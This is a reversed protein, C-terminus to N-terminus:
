VIRVFDGYASLMEDHTVLVLSESAAQAILMRDFPDRHHMPLRGVARGHEWTIPLREVEMALLYKLMEDVDIELRGLAVKIGIEWISASSVRVTEARDITQRGERSLKTSAVFAWLLINTDL